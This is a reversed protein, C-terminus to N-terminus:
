FPAALVRQRIEAAYQAGDVAPCSLSEPTAPSPPLAVTSAGERALVNNRFGFRQVAIHSACCHAEGHLYVANYLYLKGSAFIAVLRDGDDAKMFGLDITRLGNGGIAVTYARARTAGGNTGDFDFVLGIWRGDVLGNSFASSELPPKNTPCPKPQAQAESGANWLIVVGACVSLFASAFRRM